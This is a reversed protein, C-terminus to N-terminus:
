TDDGSKKTKKPLALGILLGALAAGAVFTLPNEQIQNGAKNLAEGGKIRGEQYRAIAQERGRDYTTKAIDKAKEAYDGGHTRAVDIAKAVREKGASAADAATSSAKEFADAARKRITEIPEKVTNM